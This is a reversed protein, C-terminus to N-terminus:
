VKSLFNMILDILMFSFAM